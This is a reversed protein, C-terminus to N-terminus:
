IQLSRMRRKLEDVFKEHGKQDISLFLKLWRDPDETSVLYVADELLSGPEELTVGTIEDFFIEYVEVEQEENTFYLIVRDQTLVNGSEMISSLGQAYFYAVNDAQELVGFQRLAEVDSIKMEQGSLVRTSPVVGTSSMLSFGVLVLVILTAPIGLFYWWKSHSRYDPNDKKEVRHYAFAGIVARGYFFIFVLGLGIGSYSQTEAAIIVKSVVFYVLMLVAAVRSRKYIGFALVLILGVDLFVFPDNWLALQGGADTSIAVAMFVITLAASICAAIAGQNTAKIARERDM